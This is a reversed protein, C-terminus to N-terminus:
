MSRRKITAYLGLATYSPLIDFGPILELAAALATPGLVRYFYAIGLIDIIDGVVPILGFGLFDPLDLMFGVLLHKIRALNM